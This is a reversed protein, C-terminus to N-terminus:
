LKIHVSGFRYVGGTDLFNTHNHQPVVQIVYYLALQPNQYTHSTKGKLQQLGCIWNFERELTNVMRHELRLPTSTPKPHTASSPLTIVSRVRYSSSNLQLRAFCLSNPGPPKLPLWTCDRACNSITSGTDWGCDRSSSIPM